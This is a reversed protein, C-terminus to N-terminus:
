QSGNQWSLPVATSRGELQLVVLFSSLNYSVVTKLYEEVPLVPSHVGHFSYGVQYAMSYGLESGPLMNQNVSCPPSSSCFMFQLDLLCLKIHLSHFCSSDTLLPVSPAVCFYCGLFRCINRQTQQQISVWVCVSHIMMLGSLCSGPTAFPIFELTKIPRLSTLTRVLQFLGARNFVM